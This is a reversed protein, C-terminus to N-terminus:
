STRSLISHPQHKQNITIINKFQTTYCKDAKINKENKPSCCLFKDNHFFIYKGHPIIGLKWFFCCQSNKKLKIFDWDPRKLSGDLRFVLCISAETKSRSRPVLTTCSSASWEKKGTSLFERDLLFTSGRISADTVIGRSREPSLRKSQNKHTKCPNSLLQLGLQSFGLDVELDVTLDRSKEM